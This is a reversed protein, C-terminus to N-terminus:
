AESTTARKGENLWAVLESRNFTLRNGRKSHPIKRQGVLAYIRAESLRTVTCALKVGGVEDPVGHSPQAAMLAYLQDIKQGIAYIAAPLQDFSFAEKQM